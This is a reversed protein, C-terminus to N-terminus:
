KDCEILKLVSKIMGISKRKEPFPTLMMIFLKYIIMVETSDYYDCCESYPFILENLENKLIDDYFFKYKIDSPHAMEWLTKNYFLNYLVIGCSWVDLKDPLSIFRSNIVEPSLYQITGRSPIKTNKDNKKFLTSEGFDILKINNTKTNLIINELKIDVHAIGNNHLYLVADILQKFYRLFPRTNYLTYSNLYDILDIGPCHEFIITQLLLDIGYTKRINKHNNALIGNDYERMFSTKFKIRHKEDEKKLVFRKIVFLCNCEIDNHKQKCKYEEIISFRGQGLVKGKLGQQLHNFKSLKFEELYM